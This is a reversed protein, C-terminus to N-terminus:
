SSARPGDKKELFSRIAQWFAPVDDTSNHGAGDLSVWRKPGGWADYLRKSHVVPIIEDRSAVLCLLPAGLKPAQGISDFRHRLLLDVPLYPYYHKAVAALSDFPAVLILGAISRQAALQVAVGSGLSRGFVFLPGKEKAILFDHWRLADAVLPGEGPSGASSGYGRYDVLLWGVGPTRQRVEATMWSVEEANGGFYMILPAGPAPKVHWAHLHTGDAAEIFVSEVGPVRRALGDRSADPMRQPHFILQDQLLFMLLPFAVVVVLVITVASSLM